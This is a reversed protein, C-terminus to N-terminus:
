VTLTFTDVTLTGLATNSSFTATLTIIGGVSEPILAPQDIDVPDGDVGNATVFWTWDTSDFATWAVSSYGVTNSYTLLSLVDLHEVAQEIPVAVTTGELSPAGVGGDARIILRGESDCVVDTPVRSIQQRARIVM